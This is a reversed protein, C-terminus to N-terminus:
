EPESRHWVFSLRVGSNSGSIHYDSPSSSISNSAPNQFDAIIWILGYYTESKFISQGAWFDLAPNMADAGAISAVRDSHIADNQDSSRV